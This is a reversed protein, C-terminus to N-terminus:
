RIQLNSKEEIHVWEILEWNKILKKLETKDIIYSEPIHKKLENPVLDQNDVILQESKRFSVKFSWYIIPKWEYTKSVINEIFNETKESQSLLSKKMDQLRKIESDLWLIDSNINVRKKLLWEIFDSKRNQLDLLESNITQFEEDTVIQIWDEDFCNYYKELVEEIEIELKYLNM